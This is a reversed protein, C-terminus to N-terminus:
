FERGYTLTPIYINYILLKAKWGLVVVSQYLSKLVSTTGKDIEHEIRGESQFLVGLYESEVVQPALKGGLWLPFVMKWEPFSGNTIDNFSVHFSLAVQIVKLM